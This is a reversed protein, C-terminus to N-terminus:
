QSPPRKASRWGCMRPSQRSVSVAATSSAITGNAASGSSSTATSARSEIEAPANMPESTPTSPSTATGTSSSPMTDGHAIRSATFLTSSAPSTAPRRYASEVAPLRTPVSSEASTSIGATPM